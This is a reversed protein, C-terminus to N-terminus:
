SACMIKVLALHIIMLAFSKYTKTLLNLRQVRCLCGDCIASMAVTFDMM